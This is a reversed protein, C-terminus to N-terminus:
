RWRSTEWRGLCSEFYSGAGNDTSRQLSELSDPHLGFRAAANKGRAAVSLRKIPMRETAQDLKGGRRHGDLRPGNGKAWDVYDDDESKAQLLRPAAVPRGQYKFIVLTQRRACASFTDVQASRRCGTSDDTAEIDPV